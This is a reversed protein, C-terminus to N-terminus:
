PESTNAPRRNEERRIEEVNGRLLFSRQLAKLLVVTEDLAEVARQSTRPLDPAVAAIAPTLKQMETTLVNLNTVIQGLQKGFDPAERNFAPLMKEMEDSVAALNRIISDARQQKNAAIGIRGFEISMTNLNQVLPNLRDIMQILAATRKPDSFAEGVLRLSEAVKDFSGLFASMKKGSLLDMIDTSATVPILSEKEALPQGEDGVSVELVKDSLIFPRFINVRSDARVKDRFKELIEFNVVVQHNNDLQVDTVSGVRLGAIQVVSGAHIGDASELETRYKVKSALWGQKVAIALTGVVVAFFAIAVFLGAVKEFKNFRVKM